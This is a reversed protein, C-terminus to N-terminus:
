PSYHAGGAAVMSGAHVHPSAGEMEAGEMNSFRAIALM